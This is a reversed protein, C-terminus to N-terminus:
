RNQPCPPATMTPSSGTLACSSGTALLFKNRCVTTTLPVSDTRGCYASEAMFLNRACVASDATTRSPTRPPSGPRAAQLELVGDPECAPLEDDVPGFVAAISLGLRSRPDESPPLGAGSKRSRLWNPWGIDSLWNRPLTTMSANSSESHVVTQGSVVCLMSCALCSSPEAPLWTCSSPTSALGSAM